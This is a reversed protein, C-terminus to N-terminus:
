KVKSLVFFSTVFVLLGAVLVNLIANNILPAVWMGDVYLVLANVVAGIGVRTMTLGEM